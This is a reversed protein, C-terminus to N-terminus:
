VDVATHSCQSTIMVFDEIVTTPPSLHVETLQVDVATHSCQSTIM